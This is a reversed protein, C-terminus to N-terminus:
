RAQYIVGDNERALAQLDLTVEFRASQLLLGGGLAACSGLSLYVRAPPSDFIRAIM